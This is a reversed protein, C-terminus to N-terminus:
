TPMAEMERLMEPGGTRLFRWVFVAALLLFGINLATTLNWRPGSQFVTVTFHAPALGLAQFVAGVLLGAGAM